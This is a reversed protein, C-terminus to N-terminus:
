DSLGTKTMTFREGQRAIWQRVLANQDKVALERMEEHLRGKRSLRQLLRIRGKPKLSYYERRLEELTYADLALYAYRSLAMQPEEVLSHDPYASEM